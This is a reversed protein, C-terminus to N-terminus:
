KKASVPHDNIFRPDSLLRNVVSVNGRNRATQLLHNNDVEFFVRSDKLLRDLVAVNGQYVANYLIINDNVGPDVRSDKLLSDLVALHGRSSATIVAYNKDASPDVRNDQLLRNVVELYGNQSAGRIAENNKSAPDVRKDKLLRDVVAVHGRQSASRIADNNNAAPNVGNLILIEVEPLLGKEAAVILKDETLGGELFKYVRLWNVDPDFFTKLQNSLKQYWFNQDQHINLLIGSIEPNSRTLAMLRVIDDYDMRLLVEYHLPEM